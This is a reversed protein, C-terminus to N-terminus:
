SYNYARNWYRFLRKDQCVMDHYARTHPAGLYCYGCESAYYLYSSHEPSVDRPSACRVWPHTGFRRFHALLGSEFHSTYTYHM